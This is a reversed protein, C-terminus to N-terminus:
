APEPRSLPERAERAKWVFPMLLLRGIRSDQPARFYELGIEMTAHEAYARNRATGFLYDYLPFAACFNSDTFRKDSCHHLHHYDPTVLVYRLIRDVAPPLRLNSHALISITNKLLQYVLVVMVPFGLLLIIPITLPANVYLETPHNRYTSTFDLETDSHHVAHIRWMWPIAHLARHFWYAIFEFILIVLLLTPFFGLDVHRFLGIKEEEGWWALAVALAGTFLTVSVQNIVALSINNTWRRNIDPTEARRPFVAELIAAVVLAAIMGLFLITSENDRIFNEM